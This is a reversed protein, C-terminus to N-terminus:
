PLPATAGKLVGAYTAITSDHSPLPREQYSDADGYLFDILDKCVNIAAEATGYFTPTSGIPQGHEDSFRASFIRESGWCFLSITHEEYKTQYVTKGLNMM